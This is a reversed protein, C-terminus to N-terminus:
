KEVAISAVTRAGTRLQNVVRGKADVELLRRGTYDSVLLNGNPLFDFGSAWGMQTAMQTGGISGVAKGTEDLEVIEGPNSLSVMTHGNALRRGQYLRRQDKEPAQWQWIIKGQADVEILKADAEVAILTTGAATRHANRMRMKALDESAYKWVVSGQQNVEIVQGLRADGVLTNGNPLRQAALPHELGACCTWATNGNGDAEIVQKKPGVTFLLKGGGLSQVDHGRENPWTRLERGSPWHMRVIEGRPGHDSILVPTQNKPRLHKEFFGFLRAEAREADPGKFGHGAGEITELETDVQAERLKATIAAAHDYSVYTDQTGHITLIPASMPTVYFLPSAEVHGKWEHALDGGLFLPLVEVADVSKFYSETLDVPGYYNVVAQVESSQEPNPGSGEFLKMRGTLGLMLVLHGGASGGTAGIYAPDISYKAANARLFRVAAKVDEVPAPFQHRPALRYSATACVYGRQAARICL